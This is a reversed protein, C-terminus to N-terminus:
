KYWKAYMLYNAAIKEIMEKTQNKEVSKLKKAPVSGYISDPEIITNGLVLTEVAIISNKRIIAHDMIIAGM